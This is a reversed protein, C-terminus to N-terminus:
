VEWTSVMYWGYCSGQSSKAHTGTEKCTKTGLFSSLVSCSSSVYSLPATGAQYAWPGSNIRVVWLCFLGEFVSLISPFFLPFFYFLSTYICTDIRWVSHSWYLLFIFNLFVSLLLRRRIKTWRARTLPNQHSSPSCSLQLITACLVPNSEWCPRSSYVHLQPTIIPSNQSLAVIASM